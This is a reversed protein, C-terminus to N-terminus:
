HDWSADFWFGELGGSERDEIYTAAEGPTKWVITGPLACAKGGGMVRLVRQYRLLNLAAFCRNEAWCPCERGERIPAGCRGCHDSM